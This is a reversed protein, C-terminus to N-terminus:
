RSSSPRRKSSRKGRRPRRKNEWDWTFTRKLADITGPDDETPPPPPPNRLSRVHNVVQLTSLMGPKWERRNSGAERLTQRVRVRDETPLAWLALQRDLFDVFGKLHKIHRALISLHTALNFPQLASGSVPAVAPPPANETNWLETKHPLLGRRLAHRAGYKLYYAADRMKWETAQVALQRIWRVFGEDRYHHPPSTTTTPRAALTYISKFMQPTISILPATPPRIRAIQAHKLSLRTQADALRDCQMAQTLYHKALLKNSHNTCHHIMITFTRTTPQPVYTPTLIPTTSSAQLPHLHDHFIPDDDEVEDYGFANSTADPASPLPLPSTLVAFATVMKSLEGREGLSQLVINLLNVTVSPIRPAPKGLKANRDALKQMRELFEQPHRDPNALDIGYGLKLTREIGEYDGVFHYVHIMSDLTTSTISMDAKKMWELIDGFTRLLSPKMAEKYRKRTSLTTANRISKLALNFSEKSPRRAMSRLLSYSASFDGVAAYHELVFNYDGEAPRRGSALIAGLVGRLRANYPHPIALAHGDRFHMDSAITSRISQPTGVCRRLVQQHVHLPLVTTPDSQLAVYLSWVSAHTETSEPSLAHLLTDYRTIAQGRILLTEDPIKNLSSNFFNPQLSTSSTGPVTPHLDTPTPPLTTPTNSKATTAQSASTNIAATGSETAFLNAADHSPALVTSSYRVDGTRGVRQTNNSLRNTLTRSWRSLHM